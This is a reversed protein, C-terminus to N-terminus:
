KMLERLKEFSAKEIEKHLSSGRADMTVVAPFDEADFSWMADSAGFEELKWVGTINKIRDALYAAAGSMAHLYVCGYERLANLAGDGMGGKGIIAMIGYNKIVEASYMEVRMSTTPGAAVVKYGEDTKKVVPGCHYIMGGKLDFPIDKKDPRENCLMKYVKDRGTFIPGDILVIDGVKLSTVIDKSLPANLKIEPKVM